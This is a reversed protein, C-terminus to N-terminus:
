IGQHITLMTIFISCEFLRHFLVDPIYIKTIHSNNQLTGLLTMNVNAPHFSTGALTKMNYTSQYMPSAATYPYILLSHMKHGAPAVIFNTRIYMSPINTGQRYIIYRLQVTNSINVGIMPRLPESIGGSTTNAPNITALVIIRDDQKTLLM